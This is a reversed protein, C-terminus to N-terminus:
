GCFKVKGKLINCKIQIWNCLLMFRSVEFRNGVSQYFWLFDMAKLDKLFYYFNGVVRKKMKNILNCRLWLECSNEMHVFYSTFWDSFMITSELKKKATLSTDHNSSISDKSVRFSFVIDKTVSCGNKSMQIHQADDSFWAMPFDKYKGILRVASTRYCFCAECPLIYDSYYCDLFHLRDFYEDVLPDQKLLENNENIYQVKGRFMDVNPYKQVLLNIDELFNSEYVDDDSAMIFYETECMDVLMNWHSVLSKSGMNAENRRFSFRTDNGVTRDFISKLDEPSCDDSVICKFDSFSQNRISVLSEELFRVKYAPLLFTYHITM